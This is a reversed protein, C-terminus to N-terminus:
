TMFDPTYNSYYEHQHIMSQTPYLLTTLSACRTAPKKPRKSRYRGKSLRRNPTRDAGRQSGTVFVLSNHNDPVYAVVRWCRKGDNQTFMIKKSCRIKWVLPLATTFIPRCYRRPVIGRRMVIRTCCTNRKPLSMSMHTHTHMHKVTRNPEPRKIIFAGCVNHRILDGCRVAVTVHPAMISSKGHGQAILGRNKGNCNNDHTFMAPEQKKQFDTTREDVDDHNTDEQM